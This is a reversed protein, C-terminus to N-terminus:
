YHHSRKWKMWASCPNTYRLSIYRMGWRMQTVPNTRWDTGVVEMKIAPLAQAIGHAGSRLNHAKYNWASEKGWLKSLCAFQNKGWNYENKAIDRAVLKAGDKTKAMEVARAMVAVSALETSYLSSKRDLSTFIALDQTPTTIAPSILKVAPLELRSTMPIDLGYASQQASALFLLGGVVVWISTRPAPRFNALSAFYSAIRSRMQSM